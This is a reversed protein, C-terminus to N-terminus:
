SARVLNGFDDTVFNSLMFEKGFIAVASQHFLPVVIWFRRDIARWWTFRVSAYGTEDRPEASSSGRRASTLERIPDSTVFRETVRDHRASHVRQLANTDRTPSSTQPNRNMRHGKVTTTRDPMTNPM